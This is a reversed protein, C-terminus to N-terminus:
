NGHYINDVSIQLDKNKLLMKLDEFRKKIQGQFSDESMSEMPSSLFSYTSFLERALPKIEEPTTLYDNQIASTFITYKMSFLYTNQILEITQLKMIAQMTEKFEEKSNWYKRKCLTNCHNTILFSHLPFVERDSPQIYFIFKKGLELYTKYTKPDNAFLDRFLNYLFCVLITRTAPESHTFSLLKNILAAHATSNNTIAMICFPNNSIKSRLSNMKLKFSHLHRHLPVSHCAILFSSYSFVLNKFFILPRLVVTTVNHSYEEAENCCLRLIENSNSSPKVKPEMEIKKLFRWAERMPEFFGNEDTTFAEYITDIAANGLVTSFCSTPSMLLPLFEEKTGMGRTKINNLLDNLLESIKTRSIIQNIFYSELCLGALVLNEKESTAILNNLLSIVDEATIQNSKILREMKDYFVRGAYYLVRASPHRAFTKVFFGINLEDFFDPNLIKLIAILRLTLLSDDPFKSCVAFWFNLNISYNKYSKEKRQLICEMARGAERAYCVEFPSAAILSIAIDNMSTDYTESSQAYVVKLAKKLTPFFVIVESDTCHKLIGACLPGLINPLNFIENKFAIRNLSSEPAIILRVADMLYALYEKAHIEAIIHHAGEWLQIESSLTKEESQAANLFSCLPATKWYLEIAKKKLDLYSGPHNKLHNFLNVWLATPALVNDKHLLEFFLHISQSPANTKILLSELLSLKNHWHSHSASNSFTNMLKATFSPNCEVLEKPGELLLNLFARDPHLSFAQYLWEMAESYHTNAVLYTIISLLQEKTIKGQEIFSTLHARTDTYFLIVEKAENQNDNVLETVGKAINEIFGDFLNKEKTRSHLMFLMLRCMDIGYEPKDMATFLASACRDIEQLYPLLSIINDRWLALILKGLHIFVDPSIPEEQNLSILLLATESIKNQVEETKKKDQIENLKALVVKRTSDSIFTNSSNLRAALQCMHAALTQSNQSPDLAHIQTRIESLTLLKEITKTHSDFIGQAHLIHILKAALEDAEVLCLDFLQKICNVISQRRNLEKENITFPINKWVKLTEELLAQSAPIKQKHMDSILNCTGHIVNECKNPYTKITALAVIAFLSILLSQSESDTEVLINKSLGPLDKQPYQITLAYRKEQLPNPDITLNEKKMLQILDAAVELGRKNAINVLLPYFLSSSPRHNQLIKIIMSMAHLTEEQDRTGALVLAFQQLLGNMEHEALLKSKLLNLLISQVASLDYSLLQFILVLGEQVRSSDEMEQWLSLASSCLQKHRTERGLAFLEKAGTHTEISQAIHKIEHIAAHDIGALASSVFLDSDPNAKDFRRVGGAHILAAIAPIKKSHILKQLTQKPNIELPLTQGGVILYICPQLRNHTIEAKFCPGAQNEKPALLYLYAAIELATLIDEYSCKNEFIHKMIAQLLPNDIQTEAIREKLLNWIEIKEDESLFNLTSYANFLTCLLAAPDEKEHMKLRYCLEDFIAKAKHICGRCWEELKTVFIPLAEKQMAHFGLTIHQWYFCWDTHDAYELNVFRLLKLARDFVAQITGKIYPLLNSNNLWSILELSLQQFSTRAAPAKSDPLFSIDHTRGYNDKCVMRPKNGNKGLTFKLSKGEQKTSILREVEKSPMNFICHCAFEIPDDIQFLDKWFDSLSAGELTRGHMWPFKPCDVEIKSISSTNEYLYLNRISWPNAVEIRDIRTAKFKIFNLHRRIIEKIIFDHSLFTEVHTDTDTAEHIHSWDLAELSIDTSNVRSGLLGKLYPIGLINPVDSGDIRFSNLPVRSFKHLSLILAALQVYPIKIEYSCGEFLIPFVLEADCRAYLNQLQEKELVSDDPLSADFFKCEQDLIGACILQSLVKDVPTLNPLLCEKQPWPPIPTKSEQADKNEAALATTRFQSITELAM